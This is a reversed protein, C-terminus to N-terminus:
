VRLEKRIGSLFNEVRSSEYNGEIGNFDDATLSELDEIEIRMSEVLPHLTTWNLKHEYISDALAKLPKAMVYYGGGRHFVKETGAYMNKQPINVYYFREVPTKVVKMKKSGADSIVSLMVYAAEPIWDAERLASELSIYSGPVFKQALVKGCPTGRGYIKNLAYYGRCIKVIDGAAFANRMQCYRVNDEPELAKVDAATFVVPFDHELISRTLRNM